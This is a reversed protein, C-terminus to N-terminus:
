ANRGERIGHNFSEWEEQTLDLTIAKDPDFIKPNPNNRFAELDFPESLSRTGTIQEVCVVEWQDEANFRGRGRIEVHQTTLRRVADTLAPGFCLPVVAGHRRHLEATGCACNVAVLRGELLAPEDMVAPQKTRHWKPIALTSVTMKAEMPIANIRTLHLTFTVPNCADKHRIRKQKEVARTDTINPM